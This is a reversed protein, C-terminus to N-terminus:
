TIGHKKANESFINYWKEHKFSNKVDTPDFYYGEDMSSIIAELVLCERLFDDQLMSATDGTNNNLKEDLGDMAYRYISNQRGLLEGMKALCNIGEHMDKASKKGKFEMIREGGLLIYDISTELVRAIAALISTDPLTEGREWKSVSQFSIQLREGLEQQTLGKAKRLSFITAGVKEPNITNPM